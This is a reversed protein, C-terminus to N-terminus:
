IRPQLAPEGYAPGTHLAPAVFFCIAVPLPPQPSIGVKRDRGGHFTARFNDLLPIRNTDLLTYAAAARVTSKARHWRGPTRSRRHEKQATQSLHSEVLYISQYSTQDARHHLREERRRSVPDVQCSRPTPDAGSRRDRFSSPQAADATHPVL